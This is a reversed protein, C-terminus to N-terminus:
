FLKKSGFTKEYRLAENCFDLFGEYELAIVFFFVNKIWWFELDIGRAKCIDEISDKDLQTLNNNTLIITQLQINNVFSNNELNILHNKSLDVKQLQANGGFVYFFMEKDLLSFNNYSLDISWLQANSAFLDKSLTTLNHSLNIAYLQANKKFLDKDLKLHEEFFDKQILQMQTATMQISTLQHM